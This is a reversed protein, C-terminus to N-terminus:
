RGDGHRFGTWAPLTSERPGHQCNAVSSSTIQPLYQVAFPQGMSYCNTTTNTYSYYGNITDYFTIPVYYVTNNTFTGAYSPGGLFNIDSFSNGFGVVGILCPDLPTGAAWLANQPFLTPPCSYILYGIGPNYGNPPSIPPSTAISPDINDGNSTLTFQDGYCLKYPKQGVNPTINASFTGVYATCNCHNPATGILSITCSPNASFTVTVTYLGGGTPLHSISWNQPSSFPANIITDYTTSAYNISATLTGTSPPNSFYISGSVMFSDNLCITQTVYLSDMNCTPCVVGNLITVNTTDKCYPNSVIVQYNGACLNTINQTTDGSSWLYSYPSAGNIINVGATGDCAGLCIENTLVSDVNLTQGCSNNM